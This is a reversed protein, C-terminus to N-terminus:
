TVANINNCFFYAGKQLKKKLVKIAAGSVVKVQTIHFM